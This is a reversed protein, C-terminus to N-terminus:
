LLLIKKGKALYAPFSWCGYHVRCTAMQWLWRSENVKLKTKM